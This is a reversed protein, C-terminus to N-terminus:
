ENIHTNFRNWSKDAKIQKFCRMDFICILHRQLTFWVTHLWLCQCGGLWLNLKERSSNKIRRICTSCPLSDFIHPPTAVSLWHSHVIAPHFYTTIFIIHCYCRIPIYSTHTHISQWWESSVVMKWENMERNPPFTAHKLHIIHYHLLHLASYKLKWHKHPLKRTMTSHLTLMWQVQYAREQRRM